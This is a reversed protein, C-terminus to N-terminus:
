PECVYLGYLDFYQHDPLEDFTYSFKLYSPRSGMELHRVYRYLTQAYASHGPINGRLIVRSENRDLGLEQMTTLTYKVVEQPDHGPFQNYFLLKNDETVTVSFRDEDLHLHVDKYYTFDRNAQIGEILASGHHIVPVELSPYWSRIREVLKKNAAFVNVAQSQVHQYRYYGDRDPTTEASFSLYHRLKEQSFYAGPVLTFKQNKVALKISKWYGAMLLPHNEFLQQLTQILEETSPVEELVYDEVIMGAGEQTDVVALQLRRDDVLLLLSYHTLDDISFKKDEVRQVLTYKGSPHDM